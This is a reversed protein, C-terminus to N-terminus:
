ADGPAAFALVAEGVTVADQLPKQVAFLVVAIFTVQVHAPGVALADHGLGIAALVVAVPLVARLVSGAAVLGRVATPVFALPLVALRVALTLVPTRVAFDEDAFPDVAHVFRIQRVLRLFFFCGVG